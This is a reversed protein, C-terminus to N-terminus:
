DYLEKIDRSNIHKLEFVDDGWIHLDKWQCTELIRRENVLREYLPTGPCRRIPAIQYRGSKLDVFKDIDEKLNERTHFDLGLVISGIM